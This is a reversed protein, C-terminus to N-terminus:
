KAIQIGDSGVSVLIPTNDPLNLSALKPDTIPVGAVQQDTELTKLTVGNNNGMFVGGAIVKAGVPFNSAHFGNSAKTNPDITGQMSVVFGNGTNIIVDYIDKSAEPFIAKITGKVAVLSAGSGVNGAFGPTSFNQILDSATAFKYAEGNMTVSDSNGAGGCTNDNVYCNQGVDKSCALQQNSSGGANGIPSYPNHPALVCKNSSNIYYLSLKAEDNGCTADGSECSTGVAQQCQDEDSYQQPAQVCQYNQNVYYWTTAGSSTTTNNQSNNCGAALLLVGFSLMVIKEM